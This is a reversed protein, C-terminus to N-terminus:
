RQFDCGVLVENCGLASGAPSVIPEIDGRQLLRDHLDPARERLKQHLKEWFPRAGPEGAWVMMQAGILAACHEEVSMRVIWLKSM